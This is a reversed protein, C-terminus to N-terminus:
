IIYLGLSIIELHHIRGFLLKCKNCRFFINEKSLIKNKTKASHSGNWKVISYIIFKPYINRKYQSRVKNSKNIAKMKKTINIKVRGPFFYNIIIFIYFSFNFYKNNIIFILIM